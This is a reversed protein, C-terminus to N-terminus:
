AMHSFEICAIIDCVGGLYDVFWRYSCGDSGNPCGGAVILVRWSCWFWISERSLIDLFGVKLVPMWVVCGGCSEDDMLQMSV